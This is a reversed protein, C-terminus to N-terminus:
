TEHPNTCSRIGAKVAEMAMEDPLKVVPLAVLKMVGDAPPQEKIHVAGAYFPNGDPIYTGSVSVIKCHDNEASYELADNCLVGDNLETAVKSVWKTRAANLLDSAMQLHAELQDLTEASMRRPNAIGM